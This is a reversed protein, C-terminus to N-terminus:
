KKITERLILPLQLLIWLITIPLIGALKFWVWTAEEFNRWVIENLIALFVFFFIWRINLIDWGRQSLNLADKFVLRLINKKLIIKSFLLISAFLFNVITPKIYIFIPNKLFITLGGLPAIICFILIAKTPMEKSIIWTAPIVLASTIVLSVTAYIIDYKAYILVFVAIPGFESIFKIHSKM